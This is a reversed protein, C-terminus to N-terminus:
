TNHTNNISNVVDNLIKYIETASKSEIEQEPNEWDMDKIVYIKFEGNNSHVEGYWGLDITINNEENTIQLLDEQLYYLNLAETYDKEPDYIYFENRAIKFGAPVSINYKKKEVKTLEPRNGM